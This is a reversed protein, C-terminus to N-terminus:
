AIAVPGSLAGEGSDYLRYCVQGARKERALTWGAPTAPPTEDLALELYVRAWPALVGPQQLAAFAPAALAQHFPPDLFVIDFPQQPGGNLWAIGDACVVTGRACGLRALNGRLAEALAPTRELFTCHAAGRSLAELGLVGTGAFLDLCRSGPLLPALWNFLTERIRDGTPRLGPADAVPLRRGRWEGGIIRVGGPRAGGPPRPGRPPRQPHNTRAM